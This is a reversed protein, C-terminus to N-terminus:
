CVRVRMCLPKVSGGAAACCGAPDILDFNPSLRMLNTVKDDSSISIIRERLKSGVVSVRMPCCGVPNSTSGLRLPKLGSTSSRLRLGCPLRRRPAKLPMQVTASTADLRLATTVQTM